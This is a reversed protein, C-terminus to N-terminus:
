EVEGEDSTAVSDTTRDENAKSATKGEPMCKQLPLSGVKEVCCAMWRGVVGSAFERSVRWVGCCGQRNLACRVNDFFSGEKGRPRRQQWENKM